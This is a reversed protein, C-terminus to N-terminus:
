KSESDLADKTRSIRSRNASRKPIPQLLLEDPSLRPYLQFEASDPNLVFARIEFVDQNAIILRIARALNDPYDFVVMQWKNLIGLGLLFPEPSHEKEVLLVILCADSPFTMDGHGDPRIPISV